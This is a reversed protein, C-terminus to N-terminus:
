ISKLWYIYKNLYEMWFVEELYKWCVKLMSSWAVMNFGAYITPATLKLPECEVTAKTLPQPVFASDSQNLLKMKLKLLLFQHNKKWETNRTILNNFWVCTWDAYFAQLVQFIFTGRKITQMLKRCNPFHETHVIRSYRWRCGHFTKKGIHTPITKVFFAHTCSLHCM